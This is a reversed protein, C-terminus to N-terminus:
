TSELQKRYKVISLSADLVSFIGITIGFGLPEPMVRRVFGLVGRESKIRLVLGLVGLHIVGVWAYTDRRELNDDLRGQLYQRKDRVTPPVYLVSQIVSGVSM